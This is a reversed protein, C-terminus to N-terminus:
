KNCIQKKITIYKNTIWDIIPWITQELFTSTKPFEDLQQALWILPNIAEKEFDIGDACHKIYACKETDPVNSALFNRIQKKVHRLEKQSESNIYFSFSQDFDVEKHYVSSLFTYLVYEPDFITHSSHLHMRYFKHLENYWLLINQRLIKTEIYGFIFADIDEIRDEDFYTIATIDTITIAYKNSLIESNEKKKSLVEDLENVFFTFQNSNMYNLIRILTIAASQDYEDYESRTNIIPIITQIQSIFKIKYFM